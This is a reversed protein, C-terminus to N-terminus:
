VSALTHVTIVQHLRDALRTDSTFFPVRLQQALSAYLADYMSIHCHCAVHWAMPLLPEFPFWQLDLGFMPAYSLIPADPTIDGRELKKWLVNHLEVLLFDPAAPVLNKAQWQQRQSLASDSGPENILWKVVVSTDVIAGIHPKASM